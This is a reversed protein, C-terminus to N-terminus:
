TTMFLIQTGTSSLWCLPAISRGEDTWHCSFFSRLWHIITGQQFGYQPIGETNECQQSPTLFPIRDTSVQAV